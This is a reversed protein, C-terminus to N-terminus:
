RGVRRQKKADLHWILVRKDRGATALVTGDKSLALDAIQDTHGKLKGAAKGTATDWRKVEPDNGGTYLNKGGASFALCFVVHADAQFHLRRKKAAWDYVEVTGDNEGGAALLKGDPSFAVANAHGGEWATFVEKGTALEWVRVLPGELEEGGFCHLAAALHKGDPTFAVRWARGVQRRNFTFEHLKKGRAADYVRVWDDSAAALRKGDPSFAVGYAADKLPAHGASRKGTKSTYFQLGRRPTNAVVTKGDPTFAVAGVWGGRALPDAAAVTHLSKGDASRWLRLTEDDSGSAVRKGDPSVAVSVVFNKHGECKILKPVPGRGVPVAALPLPLTLLIAICAKTNM